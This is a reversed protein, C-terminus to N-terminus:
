LDDKKNRIKDRIREYERISNHQDVSFCPNLGIGLYKIFNYFKFLDNIWRPIEIETIKKLFEKDDFEGDKFKKQIPLKERDYNDHVLERLKRTSKDLPMNDITHYLLSSSIVENYFDYHILVYLEYDLSKQYDPNLYALSCSLLHL